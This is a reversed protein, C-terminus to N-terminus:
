FNMYLSIYSSELCDKLISFYSGQPEFTFAEVKVFIFITFPDMESSIFLRFYIKIM